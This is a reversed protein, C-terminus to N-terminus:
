ANGIGRKPDGADDASGGAILEVLAEVAKRADPGIARVHLLAGNPARLGMVKLISKADAWPEVKSGTTVEIESAYRKALQTFRVSPRAHLGDAHTITVSATAVVVNAAHSSRHMNADQSSM